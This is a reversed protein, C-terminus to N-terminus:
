SGCPVGHCADQYVEDVAGPQAAGLLRRVFRYLGARHRAYLRDFASTDGLAYARMLADDDDQAIDDAPSPMPAPSHAAPSPKATSCRRTICGPHYTGSRAIPDLRTIAGDCGTEAQRSSV